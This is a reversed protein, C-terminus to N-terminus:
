EYLLNGVGYRDAVDDDLRFGTFVQSIWVLKKGPYSRDWDLFKYDICSTGESIRQDVLTRFAEGGYRRLQLPNIFSELGSFPTANYKSSLRLSGELRDLLGAGESSVHYYGNILDTIFASLDNIKKNDPNSHREIIEQSLSTNYIRIEDILGSFEGIIIGGTNSISAGPSYSNELNGDVYIAIGGSSSGAIAVYHWTGDNISTISEITNGDVTFVAKGDSITINYNDGRMITGSDDTTNIWFEITYENLNLHDGGSVKIQTNNVEAAYDIDCPEDKIKFREVEGSVVSINNEYPTGDFIRSEGAATEDFRIHLVLNDFGENNKVHFYCPCKYIIRHLVGDSKLPFIPDELGEINIFVKSVGYRPLFGKFEIDGRKLTVNIRGEVVIYFSTYPEVAINVPSINVFNYYLEQQLTNQLLNTYYSINKESNLMYYKIDEVANESARGERMIKNISQVIAHKGTIALAREFDKNVTQVVNYVEEMQINTIIGKEGILVVEYLSAILVVAPIALLLATATFIFGKM